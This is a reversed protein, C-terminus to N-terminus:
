KGGERPEVDEAAMLMPFETTDDTSDVEEAPEILDEGPLRLTINVFHETLSKAGAKRASEEFQCVEEPRLIKRLDFSILTNAPKEALEPM